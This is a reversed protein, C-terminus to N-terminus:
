TRRRRNSTLIALGGVALLSLTAPEPTTCISDVVIQDVSTGWPVTIAIDEFEPNPEITLGWNYTYWGNSEQWSPVGTNWTGGSYPGGSGGGVPTVSSPFKTSTMQVRIEWIFNHLFFTM